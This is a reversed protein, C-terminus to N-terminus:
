AAGETTIRLTLARTLLGLARGDRLMGVTAEIVLYGALQALAMKERDRDFGVGSVHRGQTFTAGHIELAVRERRWCHDFRLRRGPILRVEAEPKPYGLAYLSLLLDQEDDSISRQRRAM